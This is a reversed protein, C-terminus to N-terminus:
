LQELNLEYATSSNPTGLYGAIVLYYITDPEFEWYGGDAEPKDATGAFDLAEGTGSDFLFVDLDANDDDWDMNFFVSVPEPFQVQWADADHIFGYGNSVIDIEGRFIDVFGSGSLVGIDTANAGMDVDVFPWSTWEVQMDNPEVEDFEMGIVIPAITDLTVPDANYRVANEFLLPAPSDKGLKLSAPTSAYWTGASLGQNLSGYTGAHIWVQKINEDVKDEGKFSRVLFMEYDGTYTWNSDAGGGVVDVINSGAVPDGRDTPDDSLYAGALVTADAPHPGPMILQYAAPNTGDIGALHIAYNTGGQMLPSCAGPDADCNVDFAATYYFGTDASDYTYYSYNSYYGTDEEPIAALPFVIQTTGQIDQSSLMVPGQILDMNWLEVRVTAAADDVILTFPNDWLDQPSKLQYIDRDGTPRDDVDLGWAEITGDVIRVSVNLADLVEPSLFSNNTGDEAEAVLTPPMIVQGNIKSNDIGTEVKACYLAMLPLLPLAYRLQKTM